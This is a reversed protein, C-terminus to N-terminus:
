VRVAGPRNRPGARPAPRSERRPERRARADRCARGTAESDLCAPVRRDPGNGRRACRPLAPGRGVEPTSRTPARTAGPQARALRHSVTRECLQGVAFVARVAVASVRQCDHVSETLVWRAAERAQECHQHRDECSDARARHGREGSMSPHRTDLRRLDRLRNGRTVRSRRGGGGRRGPGRCSAFTRRGAAALVTRAAAQSRQRGAGALPRSVHGSGDRLAQRRQRAGGDRLGRHLPVTAEDHRVGTGGGSYRERDM